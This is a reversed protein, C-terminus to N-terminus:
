RAVQLGKETSYRYVNDSLQEELAVESANISTVMEKLQGVDMGMNLPVVLLEHVSSPLVYFEEGVREIVSKMIKDDLVAAAGYWGGENSLVFLMENEPDLVDTKGGCLANMVVSMGRFTGPILHSMNRVALEHLEETEIGWVKLLDNTVPTSASRKNLSLLIHYTVALDTIVSYPREALAESNQERNVLRPVIMDKVRAFDTIRDVDFSDKVDNKVRVDAIDALIKDMEEGSEYAKFYQELYITPCINSEERRITIGTLKLDNNKIVTKLEVSAEAFTEPLYERIKEVVVNAFEEFKM